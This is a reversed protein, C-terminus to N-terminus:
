LLVQGRSAERHSADQISKVPLRLRRHSSRQVTQQHHTDLLRHGSGIAGGPQRIGASADDLDLPGLAVEGAAVVPVHVALRAVEDPQVAALLGEGEVELGLVVEGQEVSLDLDNLVVKGGLSKALSRCELAPHKM